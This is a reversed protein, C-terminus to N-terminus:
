VPGIVQVGAMTFLEVSRGAMLPNPDQCAYVVKPIKEELIRDTCPPTKGRHNCPELSVYLTSEKMFHRDAEAVSQIAEIEAHPGGAVRHYGQGIIRNGYVVMAGVPPNPSVQGIGKRALFFCHRIYREHPAM